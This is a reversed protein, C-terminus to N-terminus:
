LYFSTTAMVCVNKKDRWLMNRGLYAMMLVLIQWWLSITWLKGEVGWGVGFLLLGNSHCGSAIRQLPFLCSLQVIVWLHSWWWVVEFCGFGRRMPIKEKCQKLM